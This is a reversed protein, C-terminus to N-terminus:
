RTVESPRGQRPIPQTQQVVDFLTPDGTVPQYGPCGCTVIRADIVHVAVCGAQEHEDESDGCGCIEEIVATGTCHGLLEHLDRSKPCGFLEYSSHTWSAHTIRYQYGGAELHAILETFAVERSPHTTVSVSAGHNIALQFL